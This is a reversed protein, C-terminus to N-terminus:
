QVKFATTKKYKTLKVHQTQVNNKTLKICQYQVFHNKMSKLFVTKAKFVKYLSYDIYLNILM